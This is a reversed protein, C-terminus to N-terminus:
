GPKAGRLVKDVYTAARRTSDHLPGVGYFMFGVPM